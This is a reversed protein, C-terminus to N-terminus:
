NEKPWKKLPCEETAWLTKKRIPCGCMTCELKSKDLKPCTLCLLKRAMETELGVNNTNTLRRFIAKFYNKIKTTTKPKKCYPCSM